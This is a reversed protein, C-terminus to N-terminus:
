QFNPYIKNVLFTATKKIKILSSKVEGETVHYKHSDMSPLKLLFTDEIILNEWSKLANKLLSTREQM